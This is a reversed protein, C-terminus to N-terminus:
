DTAVRIYNFQKPLLFQCSQWVKQGEKDRIFVKATDLKAYEAPLASGMIAIMTIPQEDVLDISFMSGMNKGQNVSLLPELNNYSDGIKGHYGSENDGIEVQSSYRPIIYQIELDDLPSTIFIRKGMVYNKLKDEVGANESNYSVTLENTDLDMSYFKKYDQSNLAALFMISVLALLGMTLGMRWNQASMNEATVTPIDSSRIAEPGKKLVPEVTSRSAFM